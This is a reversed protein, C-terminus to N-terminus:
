FYGIRTETQMFIIKRVRHLVIKYKLLVDFTDLDNKM